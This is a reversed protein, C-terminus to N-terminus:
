DKEKPTITLTKSIPCFMLHDTKPNADVIEYAAVWADRREKELKRLTDILMSNLLEIMRDSPYMAQSLAEAQEDTLNHVRKEM